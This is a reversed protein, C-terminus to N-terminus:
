TGSRWRHRRSRRAREEPSISGNTQGSRQPGSAISCIRSSLARASRSTARRPSPERSTFSPRPPIRSTSNATCSSCSTWPRCWGCSRTRASARRARRGQRRVAEDGLLVRALEDVRVDEQTVDLVPQLEFASPLRVRQGVDSAFRSSRARPARSRPRVQACPARATRPRMTSSSPSRGSSGRAAQEVTRQQLREGRHRGDPRRHRVVLHVLAEGREPEVPGRADRCAIAAIVDPPVRRAFTSRAIRGPTRDHIASVGSGSGPISRSARGRSTARRSAADARPAARRVAPRRAATGRARCRGPGRRAARVRGSAQDVREDASACTRSRRDCARTSRGGRAAVGVVRHRASRRIFSPCNRRRAARSRADPHRARVHEDDTAASSDSRPSAHRSAASSTARRSCAAFVPPAGSPPKATIPM